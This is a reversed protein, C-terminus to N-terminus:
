STGEDNKSPKKAILPEQKSGVRQDDLTADEEFILDDVSAKTNGAKVKSKKEDKKGKVKTKKGDEQDIKVGWSFSHNNISIAM